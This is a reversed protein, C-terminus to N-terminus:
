SPRAANKPIWRDSLEPWGPPPGPLEERDRARLGDLILALYRHRLETTREPNPGRVAAVLEFILSLDHLVADPRLVDKVQAFLEQMLQSSHNALAFMDPTPAFTGAMSQTMSSTDADVLRRMFDALVQWHDRGQNVQELAAETERAIAQM